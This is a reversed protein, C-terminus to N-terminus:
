EKLGACLTEIFKETSLFGQGYFAGHGQITPHAAIEEPTKGAALEAEVVAVVEKLMALERAMGAKDSLPGHGPIIKTRDDALALLAEQAAIFGYVSGGNGRDILPYMESFLIHGAHIVNSDKFHVVTDGDTHANAFHLLEITEGSQYISLKESYTLAPLASEPYPKMAKGFAEIFAGEQLKTRVNEHAVIVGVSDSFSANGDTHDFHFHTNLLYMIPKDTLKKIEAQIKGALPAFQDDILLTYNDDIALGINGGIGTLMYIRDAVQVSEITVEPQDHNHDHNNHAFLSVAAALFLTIVLQYKMSTVMAKPSFNNLLIQLSTM